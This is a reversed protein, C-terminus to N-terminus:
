ELCKNCRLACACARMCMFERILSCAFADVRERLCMWCLFIWLYISPHVCLSILKRPSQQCRFCGRTECEANIRPPLQIARHMSLPWAACLRSMNMLASSSFTFPPPDLTRSWVIPNLDQFPCTARWRVM